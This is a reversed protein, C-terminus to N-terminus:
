YPHDLRKHKVNDQSEIFFSMIHHQLMYRSCLRMHLNINKMKRFNKLFRTTAEYCNEWKLTILKMNSGGLKYNYKVQMGQYIPNYSM